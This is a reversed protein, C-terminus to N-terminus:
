GKNLTESLKNILLIHHRYPVNEEGTVRVNGSAADFVLSHKPYAEGVVTVTALKPGENNSETYSKNAHIAQQFGFDPDSVDGTIKIGPTHNQAM